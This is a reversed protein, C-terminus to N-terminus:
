KKEKKQPLPRGISGLAAIDWHVQWIIFWTRQPFKIVYFLHNKPTPSKPSHAKPTLDRARERYRHSSPFNVFKVAYNPVVHNM